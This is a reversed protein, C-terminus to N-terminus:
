EQRLYAEPDEQFDNRCAASCFYYTKGDYTATAPAEDAELTTNCVPDITTM